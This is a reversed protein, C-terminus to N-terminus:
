LVRDTGRQGCKRGTPKNSVVKGLTGEKVAHQGEVHVEDLRKMGPESVGTLQHVLLANPDNALVPFPDLSIHPSRADLM